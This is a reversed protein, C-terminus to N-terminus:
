NGNVGVCPIQFNRLVEQQAFQKVNQTCKFIRRKNINTLSRPLYRILTNQQLELGLIEVQAHRM